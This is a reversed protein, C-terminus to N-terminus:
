AIIVANEGEIFGSMKLQARVIGRAGSTGVAGICFANPFEEGLEGLANAAFVKAGHRIRGIRKESVDVYTAPQVGLEVLYRGIRGGEKGGGAIIVPRKDVNFKEILAAAKLRAFADRAYRPDTWTARKEHERWGHHVQPRKLFRKGQVMLRLFLDYDEPFPGERYGGVEDVVDARFTAAPHCLPQEIWLERQHDDHSLQANQWDVYAAFGPSALGRPFLKSRSSVVALSADEHLVRLDERLRHPHMLDDADFRAILPARCYHRGKDLLGGLKVDDPVPIMRIRADRRMMREVRSGTDDDSRHELLVIEFHVDRSRLVSELAVEVTRAANRAPILVSVDPESM